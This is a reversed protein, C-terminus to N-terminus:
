LSCILRYKRLDPELYRRLLVHGNLEIFANSAKKEVRFLEALLLVSDEKVHEWALLDSQVIASFM